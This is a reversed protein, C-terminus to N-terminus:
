GKLSEPDKYLEHRSRSGSLVERTVWKAWNLTLALCRQQFSWRLLTLTVVLKLPAALFCTRMHHSNRIAWLIRAHIRISM